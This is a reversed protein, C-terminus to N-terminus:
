CSDQSDASSSCADLRRIGLKKGEEKCCKREKEKIGSKISSTSTMNEATKDKFLGDTGMMQM